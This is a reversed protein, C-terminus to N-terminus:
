KKDRLQQKHYYYTQSFVPHTVLINAYAYSCQAHKLPHLATTILNHLHNIVSVKTTNFNHIYNLCFLSFLQNVAAKTVTLSHLLNTQKMAPSIVKIIWNM